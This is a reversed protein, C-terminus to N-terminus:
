PNRVPVTKLDKLRHSRGRFTAILEGRQNRVTVDYIGTRGALAVAPGMQENGQPYADDHHVCFLFPDDTAWPFGLPQVALITEPM